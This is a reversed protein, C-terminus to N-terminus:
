PTISFSQLMHVFLAEIGSRDFPTITGTPYNEINTTHVFLRVNYCAHTNGTTYLTEEYFNGAGADHTKMMTWLMSNITTHQLPVGPDLNFLTFALPTCTAINDKRIVIVGSNDSLNTGQYFKQPLPFAVAPLAKGDGLGEYVYHDNPTVEKPYDINWGYNTSTYSEWEKNVSQASSTSELIHTNIVGQSVLPPRRLMTFVVVMFVIAIGVFLPITYANKKMDDNYCFSSLM